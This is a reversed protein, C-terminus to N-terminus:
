PGAYALNGFLSWVKFSMEFCGSCEDFLFKSLLKNIEVTSYKKHWELQSIEAVFRIDELNRDASTSFRCFRSRLRSFIPQKIAKPSVDNVGLNNLKSSRESLERAARDSGYIVQYKWNILDPATPNIFEIVSPAILGPHRSVPLWHSAIKEM